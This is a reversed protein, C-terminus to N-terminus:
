EDDDFEDDGMAARLAAKRVKRVEEWGSDVDRTLDLQEEPPVTDQIGMEQMMTRLREVEGRLRDIEEDRRDMKWNLERIFENGSRLLALKSVARNPGDSDGRPPGRPPMAGPLLPEDRDGDDANVVPIQPLLLRLEDYSVKMSDRRRQEAVKHSSKRVQPQPQGAIPGLIPTGGSPLIPRPTQSALLPTNGSKRSSGEPPLTRSKATSRKPRGTESPPVLGPRLSRLGMIDSPTVPAINPSVSYGHPTEVSAVSSSSSMPADKPPPPLMQADTPVHALSSRRQTVNRTPPTKRKSPSSIAATHLMPRAGTASSNQRKRAGSDEADSNRRSRKAHQSQQGPAIGHSTQHSPGPPVGPTGSLWPSTIPSLLEYETIAPSTQTFALAPPASMTLQQQQMNQLDTRSLMNDTSASNCNAASNMLMGQLVMPSMSLVDAPMATPLLESSAAPTPLGQYQVDRRPDQSARLMEIQQQLIQTQLAQLQQIKMHQELREKLIAPTIAPGLSLNATTAPQQQSGLPWMHSVPESLSQQHQDHRQQQHQLHSQHQQQAHGQAPYHPLPQGQSTAYQQVERGPLQQQGQHGQHSQTHTNGQAPANFIDGLEQGSGNVNVFDALDFSGLDLPFEQSQTGFEM